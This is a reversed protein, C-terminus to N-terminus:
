AITEGLYISKSRPITYTYYVFYISHKYNSYIWSHILVYRLLIANPCLSRKTRKLRIEKRYRHMKYVYLLIETVIVLTNKPTFFHAFFRTKHIFFHRPTARDAEVSFWLVNSFKKKIMERSNIYRFTNAKRNAM